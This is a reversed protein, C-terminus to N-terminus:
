LICLELNEYLILCLKEQLISNGVVHKVIFCDQKEAKYSECACGKQLPFKKGSVYVGVRPFVHFCTSVRPFVNNQM